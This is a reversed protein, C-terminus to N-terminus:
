GDLFRRKKRYQTPTMGTVQKFARNFRSLTDFGSDLAITLISETTSILERQAHAVRHRTILTTLTTGFTKRFVTTAYNPHLDVTDAIDKVRIRSRYNRAVFQAMVESYELYTQPTEHATDADVSTCGGQTRMSHALRFLRARLEFLVAEQLDDAGSRIDVEWREFLQGDNTAEPENTDSVVRGQLMATLLRNPLGWQLVWGLPITVVHLFNVGKAELIQHPRAAWFLSLNGPRHIVRQEGILWILPEGGTNPVVIEVEDHRDPRVDDPGPAWKDIEFGYPTFEPTTSERRRM